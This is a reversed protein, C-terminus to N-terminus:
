FPLIVDAAQQGYRPQQVDSIQGRGGYSIRAAAIKDYTIENFRNIDEPRVYGTIFLERIEHNVRVEQSGQIRLVGSEMVDVVTAAVRLELTENRRVTGNGSSRSSSEMQAGTALSGNGPLLPDIVGPLGLMAGVSMDENASRARSSANSFEAREDIEIVVTMIDGTVEARREGLLSHRGSHWLSARTAGIRPTAMRAPIQRMAQAEVTNDLPTFDPVKGINEVRGCSLLLICFGLSAAHKM